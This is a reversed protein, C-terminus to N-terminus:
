EDNKEPKHIPIDKNHIKDLQYLIRDAKYFGIKYEMCIEKLKKIYDFYLAIKSASM